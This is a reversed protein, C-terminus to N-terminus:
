EKEDNIQYKKLYESMSILDGTRDDQVYHGKLSQKKKAMDAEFNKFNKNEVERSIEIEDNWREQNLWTTPHPIYEKMTKETKWKTLYRDLGELVDKEKQETNVKRKYITQAKSKGIKRPYKDWFKKFRSTYINNNNNNNNNTTLQQNTTPQNNTLQNTPQQFKDYNTITIITYKSTTYKTVENTSILHKLATRVNQESLGTEQSIKLRGTILQGRKVEVGKWKGQTHNAKLLFYLFLHTTNVDEFWEWDLMKRHISIWGKNEMFLRKSTKNYPNTKSKNKKM